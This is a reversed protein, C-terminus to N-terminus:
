LFLNRFPQGAVKEFPEFLNRFSSGAVKKAVKERYSFTAFLHVPLRKLLNTILDRGTQKNKIFVTGHPFFLNRFPQGAVKQSGKDVKRKHVKILRESGKQLRQLGRHM